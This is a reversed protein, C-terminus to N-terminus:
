NLRAEMEFPPEVMLSLSLIQKKSFFNRGLVLMKNAKREDIFIFDGHRVRETFPLIRM